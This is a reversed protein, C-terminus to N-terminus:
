DVFRLHGAKRRLWGVLVGGVLVGAFAGIAKFTADPLQPHRTPSLYQLAEIGFAAAPLLLFLRWWHKPYAFAFAAGMAVFALARDLNVTTETPPRISIPSVTVFVIAAVLGWAVLKALFAIKM